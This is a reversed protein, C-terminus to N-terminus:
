RGPTTPGARSSRTRSPVSRIPIAPAVRREVRFSRRNGVETLQLRKQRQDPRGTRSSISPIVTHPCADPFAQGKPRREDIRGVTSAAVLTVERTIVVPEKGTM